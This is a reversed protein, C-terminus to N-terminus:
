LEESPPRGKPRQPLERPRDLLSSSFRHLGLPYTEGNAEQEDRLGPKRNRRAFIERSTLFGRKFWDFSTIPGDDSSITRIERRTQETPETKKRSHKTQVVITLPVVLGNSSQHSIAFKGCSRFSAFISRRIDILLAGNTKQIVHIDINGLTATRINTRFTEQLDTRLFFFMGSAWKAVAM